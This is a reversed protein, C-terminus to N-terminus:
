LVTNREYIYARYSIFTEIAITFLQFLQSLFLVIDEQILLSVFLLLSECRAARKRKKSWEGFAFSIRNQPIIVEFTNFM